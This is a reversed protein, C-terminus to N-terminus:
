KGKSWITKLRSIIKHNQGLLIELGSLIQEKQFIYYILAVILFFFSTKFFIEIFISGGVIVKESLYLIVIQLIAMLFVFVFGIKNLYQGLNYNMMNLGFAGKIWDFVLIILMYLGAYYYINSTIQLMASLSVGLVVLRTISLKSVIQPYGFGTLVGSLPFVLVKLYNFVLFMQFLIISDDWKKGFVFQFIPEAYFVLFLVIPLCLIGIMYSIRSLIHLLYEPNSKFKAIFSLLLSTQPYVTYNFLTSSQSNSFYYFGVEASSFYKTVLIKDIYNSFYNGIGGILSHKGFYLIKKFELRDWCYLEFKFSQSLFIIISRIINGALSGYAFSLVGFGMLAFIVKVITGIIDRSVNAITEPKYNLRKRLIFLNIIIAGSVLYNFSFLRLLEGVIDQECYDAVFYSGFFQIIFMIFNLALRMKFTVNLINKEHEKDRITEQLYYNEFGMNALTQAFGIVIMAMLLYGYDDPFLIRALIISGIFTILKSFLNGIFIYKASKRAGVM